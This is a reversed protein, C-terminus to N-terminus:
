PTRAIQDLLWQRSYWVMLGIADSVDGGGDMSPDYQPFMASIVAQRNKKKVGDTWDNEDVRIFHRETRQCWRRADCGLAGVATGYTPLGAGRGGHRKGVHGSTWEIVVVDPILQDLLEVLDDCMQDIRLPATAAAKPSLLGGDLLRGREDGLAWGTLTSSPDVTAIRM